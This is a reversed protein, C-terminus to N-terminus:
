PDKFLFYKSNRFHRKFFFAVTAPYSLITQFNLNKRGGAIAKAVTMKAYPRGYCYNKEGSFVQETDPRKYLVIVKAM